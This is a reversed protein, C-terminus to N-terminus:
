SVSHEFEAWGDLMLVLTYSNAIYHEVVVCVQIPAGMTILGLDDALM